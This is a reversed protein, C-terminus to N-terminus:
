FRDDWLIILEAGCATSWEYLARVESEPTFNSRLRIVLPTGREALARIGQLDTSIAPTIHCLQRLDDPMAEILQKLPYVSDETCDAVNCSTANRKQLMQRLQLGLKEWGIPSTLDQPVYLQQSRENWPEPLLSPSLVPRRLMLEIILASIPLLLFLLGLALNIYPLGTESQKPSRILTDDLIEIMREEGLLLANTQAEEVLLNLQQQLKERLQEDGNQAQIGYSNLYSYGSTIQQRATDLRALYRNLEKIYYAKAYAEYERGIQHFFDRAFARTCDATLFLEILNSGMFRRMKADYTDQADVERMKTLQIRTYKGTPRVRRVIVTGIPTETAQDYPVFVNEKAKIKKQMYMGKIKGLQVGDHDVNVQMSWSDFDTIHKSVFRIDVPCHEYIDKGEYWYRVTYNLKTGADIVMKTSEFYKIAMDRDYPNLMAWQPRYIDEGFSKSAREGQGPDSYKIRYTTFYEWVPMPMTPRVVFKIAIVLALSILFYWRRNTCLLLRFINRGSHWDQRQTRNTPKNM